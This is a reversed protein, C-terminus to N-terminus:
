IGAAVHKGRAGKEKQLEKASSRFSIKRQIRLALVDGSGNNELIFKRVAAIERNQFDPRCRAMVKEWAPRKLTGYAVLSDEGETVELEQAAKQPAIAKVQERFAEIFRDVKEPALEDAADGSIQRRLDEEQISLSENRLRMSGPMPEYLAATEFSKKSRRILYTRAGNTAKFYGTGLGGLSQVASVYTGPIVRLMEKKHDKHSHFFRNQRIRDHPSWEVGPLLFSEQYAEPEPIVANCETCRILKKVM